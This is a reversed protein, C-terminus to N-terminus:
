PQKLLGFNRARGDGWRAISGPADVGTVEAIRVTVEPLDDPIWISDWSRCALIEVAGLTMGFREGLGVILASLKKYCTTLVVVAFPGFRVRVGSRGFRFSQRTRSNYLIQPDPVSM